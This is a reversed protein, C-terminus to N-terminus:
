KIEGLIYTIKIGDYGEITAGTKVVKILKYTAGKYFPTLTYAKLDDRYNLRSVFSLPYIMGGTTDRYEYIINTM